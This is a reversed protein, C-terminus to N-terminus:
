ESDLESVTEEVPIDWGPIISYKLNAFRLYSASTEPRSGEAYLTSELDPCLWLPSQKEYSFDAGPFHKKGGVLLMRPEFLAKIKEACGESANTLVLFLCTKPAFFFFEDLPIPVLSEDFQSASKGLWQIIGEDVPLVCSNCRHFCFVSNDKESFVGDLLINRYKKSAGRFAHISNGPSSFCERIDCILTPKKKPEM